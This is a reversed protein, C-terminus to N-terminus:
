CGSRIEIYTAGSTDFRTESDNWWAVRQDVPMDERTAVAQLSGVEGVRFNNQLKM